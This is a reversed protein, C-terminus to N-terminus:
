SRRRYRWFRLMGFVSVLGIVPLLAIAIAIYGQSEWAPREGLAPAQLIAQPLPTQTPTPSAPAPAATPAATPTPTFLPLANLQPADLQKSAYWVRYNAEGSRNRDSENRTFWTVHIRNGAIAAHPWEPYRNDAVIVEPKSWTQGNWIMHLLGPKDVATNQEALFGTMILHVNGAGDTVMSYSDFASDFPRVDPLQLPDGWTTGGDTSVQYGIANINRVYYVVIPSSNNQLGIAIQGLAYNPRAFHVPPDWTRGGDRSRRYTSTAEITGDKTLDEEWVIHLHDDKDIKIQPKISDQPSQSLNIPAAWGSENGTSRRYFLDHCEPCDKRSNAPIIENWLAHLKGKSDMAMADYYPLNAGNIRRPESWSQASWADDWPANIYDIRNPGRVLVHLRGDRGMVISNRAAYINKGRNTTVIDNIPSWKGDRLERYMLLDISTGEKQDLPLGSSWIIHVSGDPGVALDPFWSSPTSGSVEVPQDWSGSQAVAPPSNWFLPLLILLMCLALYRKTV